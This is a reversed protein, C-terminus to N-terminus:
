REAIEDFSEVKGSAIEDLWRRARVITDILAAQTDARIVRQDVGGSLPEIVQRRGRSSPKVWPISITETEGGAVLCQNLHVDVSGAGIVVHDVAAAVLARDDPRFECIDQATATASVSQSNQIEGSLQATWDVRSSRIAEVILAEIEPAPARTLSGADDRRGESLARSTYYRYRAGNKRSHTPTMRNGRDDYIRGILIADSTTRRSQDAILNEALKTQVAEFIDRDVIPLHEGAYSLGRHNLEGIYTRNKLLHGLAGRGFPIGGIVRGTALVRRRTAVGNRRLEALLPTMGSLELHRRFIWRVTESEAEDIVLKRDELRYGFPV